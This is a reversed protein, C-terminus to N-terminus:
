NQFSLTVKKLSNVITQRNILEVGLIQKGNFIFESKCASWIPKLILKRFAIFIFCHKICDKYIEQANHINHCLNMNGCLCQPSVSAQLHSVLKNFEFHFGTPPSEWDCDSNMRNRM